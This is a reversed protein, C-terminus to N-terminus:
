GFISPEIFDFIGFRKNGKVGTYWLFSLVCCDRTRLTHGWSGPAPALVKEPSRCLWRQKRLLVLTSNAKKVRIKKHTYLPTKQLSCPMHYWLLSSSSAFILIWSDEALYWLNAFVTSCHSKKENCKNKLKKFYNNEDFNYKHYCVHKNNSNRLQHILIKLNKM